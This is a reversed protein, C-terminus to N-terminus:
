PTVPPEEVPPEEVPPEEVPPEVPPSNAALAAVIEESDAKAQNFIADVKAQVLPSLTTDALAEAL